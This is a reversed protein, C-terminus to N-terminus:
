KPDDGGEAVIPEAIAVVPRISSVTEIVNAINSFNTMKM